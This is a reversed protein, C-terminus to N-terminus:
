LLEFLSQDACCDLEGGCYICKPNNSSVAMGCRVCRLKTEKKVKKPSTMEQVRRSLDTEDIGSTQQVIEWLAQTIVTLKEVKANLLEIKQISDESYLVSKRALTRAESIRRKQFGQIIGAM